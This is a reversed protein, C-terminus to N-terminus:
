ILGKTLKTPLCQMQWQSKNFYGLKYTAKNRIARNRTAKNRIEKTRTAKTRTAKDQKAKNHSARNHIERNHNAKDQKAQLGKIPNERGYVIAKQRKYGKNLH